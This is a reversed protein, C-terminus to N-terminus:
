PRRLGVAYPTTDIEELELEGTLVAQKWTEHEDDRQHFEPM